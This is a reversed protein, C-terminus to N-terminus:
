RRADEGARAPRREGAAVFTGFITHADELTDLREQAEDGLRNAVATALMGIVSMAATLSDFVGPGDTVTCLHVAALQAAPNPYRDGITVLTAGRDIVAESTRLHDQQARRFPFMVVVDSVALDLFGDAPSTGREPLSRVQPRLSNLLTAAYAALPHNKRFDVFMVERAGVLLDVVREVEALDLGEYTAVLNRADSASTENILVGLDGATVSLERRLLDVPSGPEIPRGARALLRFERFSELGLKHVFRTVTPKSVGAEDALETATYSAVIEGDELIRDAIRMESPTLTGYHRTVLQELGSM